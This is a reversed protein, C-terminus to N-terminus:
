YEKLLCNHTVKKKVRLCWSLKQASYPHSCECLQTPSLLRLTTLQGNAFVLSLCISQMLPVLCVNEQTISPLWRSLLTLDNLQKDQNPRQLPQTGDGGAISRSETLRQLAQAGGGGTM